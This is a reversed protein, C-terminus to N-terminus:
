VEERRDAPRCSRINEAPEGSAGPGSSIACCRCYAVFTLPSTPPPPSYYCSEERTWVDLHAGARFASFFASFAEGEEKPKTLQVEEALPRNDGGGGASSSVVGVEESATAPRVLAAFPSRVVQPPPPAVVPGAPEQHVTNSGVSGAAEVEVGVRFGGVLSRSSKNDTGGRLLFRGDGGNVNLQALLATSSYMHSGHESFTAIASSSSSCLAATTASLVLYRSLAAVRRFCKDPVSRNTRSRGAM